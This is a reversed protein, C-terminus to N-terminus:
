SKPDIRKKRHVTIKGRTLVNQESSFDALVKVVERVKEEAEASSSRVSLALNLPKDRDPM